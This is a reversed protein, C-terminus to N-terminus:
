TAPPFVRISAEGLGVEVLVGDIAQVTQVRQLLRGDAAYLGMTSGEPLDALVLQGDVSTALRQTQSVPQASKTFVAGGPSDRHIVPSGDAARVIAAPADLVQQVTPLKTQEVPFVTYGALLDSLEHRSGDLGHVTATTLSTPDSVYGDALWRVRQDLRLVERGTRRDYAVAGGAGNCGVATILPFCQALDTETEWLRKGDRIGMLRHNTPSGDTLQVVTIGQSTSPFLSMYLRGPVTDIVQSEGTAIDISRLTTEGDLSGPGPEQDGCYAVGASSALWICVVDEVAYREAGTALDRGIARKGAEQVLVINHDPSTGVLFGPDASWPDGVGHAYRDDLWFTEPAEATEPNRPNNPACGAAGAAFIGIISVAVLRQRLTTM